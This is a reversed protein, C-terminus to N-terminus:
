AYTIREMRLNNRTQIVPVDQVPDAGSPIGVTRVRDALVLVAAAILDRDIMEAALAAGSELAADTEAASLAGVEVTVPRDGLDSDPDLERAPVRRVAPHGPLDVANALLTAAADAEAGTRALVTVSDAIGLSFSRGHRGSTAVGRVPMVHTVDFGGPSRPRAPDVVVGLRFRAGPQLHLAIDGGDNVYARSLDRGALMAELVEDAVSGAVAAMPTVFAPLHRATAAWMRRATPGRLPCAEHTVPRRLRPLERVLEPLITRFRDIAQGYAREVEDPAGDAGVILDIPGHQLHLRRGDPLLRHVAQQM